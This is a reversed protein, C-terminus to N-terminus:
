RRSARQRDRWFLVGVAAAAALFVFGQSASERLFGWAALVLCTAISALYAPAQSKVNM